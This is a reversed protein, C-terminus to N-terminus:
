RLGRIDCDSLYADELNAFAFDAGHLNCYSLHAGRLNAALFLGGHLDCGSSLFNGGLPAKVLYARELSRGAAIEAEIVSRLTVGPGFCEWVAEPDFKGPDESHWYCRDAGRFLPRGCYARITFTQHVACVGSPPQSLGDLSAIQSDPM